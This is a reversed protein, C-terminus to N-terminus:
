AVKAFYGQHRSTTTSWKGFHEVAGSDAWKVSVITRYSQLWKNGLLDTIIWAQKSGIQEVRAGGLFRLKSLATGPNELDINYHKAFAKFAYNDYDISYQKM